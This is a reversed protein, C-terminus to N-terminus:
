TASLKDIPAHGGGQYFKKWILIGNPPTASETESKQVRDTRASDLVSALNVELAVEAFLAGVGYRLRERM